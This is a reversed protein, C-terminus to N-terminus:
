VIICRVRSLPLHQAGPPNAAFEFHSKRTTHPRGMSTASVLPRLAEFCEVRDRMQIRLEAADDPWRKHMFRCAVPAGSNSVYFDVIMDRINNSIIAM